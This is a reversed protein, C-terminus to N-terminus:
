GRGVISGAWGCKVLIFINFVIKIVVNVHFLFCQAFIDCDYVAFSDGEVGDNTCVRITNLYKTRGEKKRFKNGSHREDHTISTQHYIKDARKARKGITVLFESLFIKISSAM